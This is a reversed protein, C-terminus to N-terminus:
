HWINYLGEDFKYVDNTLDKNVIFSYDNKLHKVSFDYSFSPAIKADCEYMKRVEEVDDCVLFIEFAHRLYEKFPPLKELFLRPLNRDSHIFLSQVVSIPDNLFQRYGPGSGCWSYGYGDDGPGVSRKPRKYL